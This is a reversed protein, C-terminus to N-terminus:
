TEEVKVKRNNNEPKEDILLYNPDIGALSPKGHVIIEIVTKGSRIPHNKLYLTQAPTKSDGAFVGIPISDNLAVATERGAGNVRFKGARIQLRVRYMGSDLRRATAEETKLEWFTNKEFLDSLLSRYAAPTVAQLENYLDRTTALRSGQLHKQLLSRLAADVRDRGIYASLAFFAFPGKRYAQYADFAHLLPVSPRVPRVPYPQRMMTRLRELQERGAAEEIVGMASYWALSEALVPAGAVHAPKLQHGWWQHAMEHGVVAFPLDVADQDAAPDMLSFGEGYTIQMAEAHMGMLKGAEEILRVQKYPYPGYQRTHYDLSAKAARFMREINKTHAPHHFIQIKVGRHMGEFLAYKASFIAYQNQIPAEAVYQFY